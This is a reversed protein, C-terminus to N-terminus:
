TRQSAQSGHHKVLWSNANNFQWRWRRQPSAQDSKQPLRALLDLWPLQNWLKLNWVNRSLWVTATMTQCSKHSRWFIVLKCGETSTKLLVQVACCCAETVLASFARLLNRSRQGQDWRTGRDLNAQFAMWCASPCCRSRSSLLHLHCRFPSIWHLQHSMIHSLDGDLSFRRLM